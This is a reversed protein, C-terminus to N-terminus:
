QGARLGRSLFGAETHLDRGTLTGEPLLLRDVAGGVVQPFVCPGTCVQGRQPTRPAFGKEGVQRDEQPHPMHAHARPQPRPERPIGTHPDGAELHDPGLVCLAAQQGLAVDQGAQWLGDQGSATWRQGGTM